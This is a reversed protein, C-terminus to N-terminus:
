QNTLRGLFHRPLAESTLKWREAPYFDERIRTGKVIVENGFHIDCLRSTQKLGPIINEWKTLKNKPVSFLGVTRNEDEYICGCIFCYFRKCNKLPKSHSM